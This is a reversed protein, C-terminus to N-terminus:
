ESPTSCTGVIQTEETQKSAFVLVEGSPHWSPDWEEGPLDSIRYVKSPDSIPSIYIDWSGARKSAFAIWKGDPSVAPDWEDADSRIFLTPQKANPRLQYIDFDGAPNAIFYVTGDPAIAPRWAEGQSNTLRTRVGSATDISYLKPIDDPKQKKFGAYVIQNNGVAAIAGGFTPDSILEETKLSPWHRVMLRELSTRQENFGQGFVIKFEQEQATLFAPHREDVQSEPPSLDFLKRQKLNYVKIRNRGDEWIHFLLWNGDPSFSPYRGPTGILRRVEGRRSGSFKLRCQAILDEIRTIGTDIPGTDIRMEFLKALERAVIQGIAQSGSNNLHINDSLFAWSNDEPLIHVLDILPVRLQEAVARISDNFLEQSRSKVGLPQTMLVPRKGLAQTIGVFIRLNEEFKPQNDRAYKEGFDIANGDVEIEETESKEHKVEGTWPDFNSAFSRVLFLINSRYSVYDWLSHLFGRASEKVALASTTADVGLDAYYGGRLALILGDNINHLMVVIDAERFGRRNILGNISDQTTHGRVGANVTEISLGTRRLIEEVVAVFRYPEDVENAETTSGGLFLIKAKANPAEHGSLISGDQGSRFKRPENQSIKSQPSRDAVPFAHDISPVINLTMTRLYATEARFKRADERIRGIENAYGVLLDAFVASFIVIALVAIFGVSRVIKKRLKKSTAM